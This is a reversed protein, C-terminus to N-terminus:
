MAGPQAFAGRGSDHNGAAIIAWGDDYRTNAWSATWCSNIAVAQVMAPAANLEDLFLIGEGDRPLFDQPQGDLAGM